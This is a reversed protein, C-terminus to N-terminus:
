TQVVQPHFDYQPELTDILTHLCKLVHMPNLGGAQRITMQPSFEMESHIYRTATLLIIPINAFEPDAQLADIVEFGNMEPMAIDLLILEPQHTKIVELAQIGDYARLITYAPPLTEISRQVLQVFGMDDDVVLIREIHSYQQIHASLQQTTIPKALCAEVGLQEVLWATSPLSCEIYPISVDPPPPTPQSHPAINRIIAKPRYQRIADNLTAADTQIVEYNEIHRDVMRIVNPDSDLVLVHSREQAPNNNTTIALTGNSAGRFALPITFVFRSGTGEESEVYVTGNHAEVFRKTIALGLGAGGHSRSLSYDVQYFEEFILALKDEPIGQGTDVVEFVLANHERQVTLSVTGSETFRRANNLLNLIAQRLRTRDIEIPPLNPAVDVVLAVQSDHFLSHMMEATGQIFTEIDTLEFNLSFGSMEIHSLDLVDDILDLLHRSNRHIQYIDRHLKPTFHINGYVEPTLYMIESFGMILNLPTRLEHSINAAFREKLQRAENARQQAHILQQRLRQQAVYATDLSKLAHVLEARRDRTEQLLRNAHAHMSRYWALAVYFTSITTFSVATMLTIVILLVDLAYIPWHILHLLVTYGYIVGASFLSSHSVLLTSALILPLGLLPLWAVPYLWMSIFLSIHLVVIFAYRSRNAIPPYYHGTLFIVYTASLCIFLVDVPLPRYLLTVYAGILGAVIAVRRLSILVDSRLNQLIDQFREDTFHFTNEM